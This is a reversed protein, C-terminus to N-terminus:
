STVELGDLEDARAPSAVLVSLAAALCALKM